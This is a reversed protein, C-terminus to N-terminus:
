IQNLKEKKWERIQFPEDKDSGFKDKISIIVSGKKGILKGIARKEIELVTDNELFRYKPEDKLGWDVLGILHIYAGAITRAELDELHIPNSFRDKLKGLKKKKKGFLGFM